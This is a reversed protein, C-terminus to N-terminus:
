RAARRSTSARATAVGGGYNGVISQDTKADLIGGSAIEIRTQNFGTIDAADRELDRHRRRAPHVQGEGLPWRRRQDGADRRTRDDDRRRRHRRRPGRGTWDLTGDVKLTGAGGITGGALTLTSHIDSQQTTSLPAKLEGSSLNIPGNAEVSAANATAGTGITVGGLLACTRRRKDPFVRRRQERRVLM